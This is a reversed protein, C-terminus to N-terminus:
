SYQLSAEYPICVWAAVIIWLAQQASRFAYLISLLTGAVVVILSVVSLLRCYEVDNIELPNPASSPRFSRATAFLSVALFSGDL